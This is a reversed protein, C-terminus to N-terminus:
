AKVSYKEILSIALKFGEQGAQPSTYFLELVGDSTSSIGFIKFPTVGNSDRSYDIIIGINRNESEILFGISKTNINESVILCLNLKDRNDMVKLIDILQPFDFDGLYLSSKTQDNWSFYQVLPGLDFAKEFTCIYKLPPTTDTKLCKLHIERKTFIDELSLTRKNGKVTSFKMGGSERKMNRSLSIIESVNNTLIIHSTPKKMM